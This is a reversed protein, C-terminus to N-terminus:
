GTHVDWIEVVVTMGGYLADTTATTILLKGDAHFAVTELTELWQPLDAIFTGDDISWLQVAPVRRTAPNSLVLAAYQEDPSFVIDRFGYDSGLALTTVDGDAKHLEVVTQGDREVAQAVIERSPSATTPAPPEYAGLLEGSQTNWRQGNIVLEGAASFAIDGHEPIV